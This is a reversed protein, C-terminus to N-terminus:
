VTEHEKKLSFDIRKKLLELAEIAARDNDLERAIRLCYSRENPDIDRLKKHDKAREAASVLLDANFSLSDEYERIITQILDFVFKKSIESAPSKLSTRTM